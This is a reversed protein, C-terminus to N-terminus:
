MLLLLLLRALCCFPLVYLVLVTGAISPQM